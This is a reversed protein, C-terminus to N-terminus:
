ILPHYNHYFKLYIEIICVIARITMSLTSRSNTYDISVIDNEPRGIVKPEIIIYIVIPCTKLYITIMVKLRRRWWGM